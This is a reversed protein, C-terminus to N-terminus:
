YYMWNVFVRVSNGVMLTAVADVAGAAAAAAAAVPTAAATASTDRSGRAYRRRM